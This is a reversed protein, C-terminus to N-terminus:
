KEKQFDYKDEHITLVLNNTVLTEEDVWEVTVPGDVFNYYIM